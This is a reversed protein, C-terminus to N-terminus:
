ILDNSGEIKRIIDDKAYIFTYTAKYKTTSNEVYPVIQVGLWYGVDLIQRWVDPNGSLTTITNKQVETLTRGISITGNFLAQNIVQQMIATIQAVGEANAPVKNSALLLTALIATFSSKLWIENVYVNQDTPASGNGCMVGRQYFAIKQGATQTQGYYNIRLADFENAEANTSVSPEINFIQYMYNQTSNRANYDTAGAIMMPMMEPYTNGGNTLTMTVGNIDILSNAYNANAKTIAVSYFYKINQTANWNAAEIIQELTLTPMFAFSYWNDSIDAITNLVESVSQTALGNSYIAGNLWGIANAVDHTTGASVSIAGDGAVGSVLNFSKRTADYTVIAGDSSINIDAARIATQLISAINALSTAGSFDIGTIHGQGDGITLNFDGNTIQKLANLSYDAVKGYVSGAVAENAWRAFNLQKCKTINKSIWSFYFSARKYEESNSGFYTLVDNANTFTIISNTPILVNTSLLLGNTDRNSVATSAAVGSTIDVYRTISIAM